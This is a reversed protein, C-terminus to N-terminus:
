LMVDFIRLEEGNRGATIWEERPNRSSEKRFDFTLLYGEGRGRRRLYEGLQEYGAGHAAERRWIKLEIIFEERGYSVVLDMRLADTTESEIYYFGEGNILPVLFSLFVLRGQRELFAADEKGFVQRFHLAFRRLCLEMDFRGDKVVDYKFVGNVAKRDQRRGDKSLFYNAIRTEFIRNAIVIKEGRRMVFGFMLAWSVVPDDASYLKGRAEGSILFDYILQYLDPFAELNKFIDDFLTNNEQTILYKAAKQVGEATWDRNFREEILQCLRSVLYPYGSSYDYVEQSVAAIDMGTRRDKQYERLMSGIEEPKFSMDVTFDAAINWPSNYLKGEAAPGYVGENIMKLKQNKIDYVGALIVSQFTFARGDKRELYKDRLMGLFHIYVRNNSTKDVEDIMLVLKRGRCMRGIHKGLLMFGTVAADVWSEIYASDEAISSFRLADQVLGMFAACFTEPSEFPKDGIGEFSTRVCVYEGFLTRQLQSLVTTKGFQRARNITFYEGRDVMEKIQRIKDSIDVMYDQDPVCLGTTNFRRM